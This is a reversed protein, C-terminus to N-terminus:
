KLLLATQQHLKVSDPTCFIYHLQFFCLLCLCLIGYIPRLFVIFLLLFSFSLHLLHYQPKLASQSFLLYTILCGYFSFSDAFFNKKWISIDYRSVGSSKQNLYQYFDLIM